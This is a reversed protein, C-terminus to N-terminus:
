SEQVIGLRLATEADFEDGTLGPKGFDSLGLTIFADLEALKDTTEQPLDFDM